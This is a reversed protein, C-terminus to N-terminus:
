EVDLNRSFDVPYVIYSLNLLILVIEITNNVGIHFSLKAYLGNVPGCECQISYTQLLYKM